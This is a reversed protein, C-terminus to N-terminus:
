AANKREGYLVLVSHLQHGEMELNLVYFTDYKIDLLRWANDSIQKLFENLRSELMSYDTESIIKAKMIAGRITSRHIQLPKGAGYRSRKAM